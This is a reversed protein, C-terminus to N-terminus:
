KHDDLLFRLLFIARRATERSACEASMPVAMTGQSFDWYFACTKDRSAIWARQMDRLKIKQADDLKERLRKFTENLVDDWISQERQLCNSMEVTTGGTNQLCPDSVVGLCSEEAGPKSKICGQLTVFDRVAQGPGQASAVGSWLLAAVAVALFARSM